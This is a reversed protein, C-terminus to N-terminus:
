LFARPQLVDIMNVPSHFASPQQCVAVFLFFGWSCGCRVIDLSRVDHIYGRLKSAIQSLRHGVIASKFERSQQMCEARLFPLWRWGGCGCTQSLAFFLRTWTSSICTYELLNHMYCIWLLDIHLLLSLDSKHVRLMCGTGGKSYSFTIFIGPM